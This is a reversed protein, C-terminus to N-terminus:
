TKSYFFESFEFRFAIERVKDAPRGDSISGIQISHIVLDVLSIDNLKIFESDCPILYIHGNELMSLKVLNKDKVIKKVSFIRYRNYVNAIVLEGKRPMYNETSNCENIYNQLKTKIKDADSLTRFWFKQPNEIKCIKIQIKKNLEM